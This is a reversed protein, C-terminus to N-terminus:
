DDQTLGWLVLPVLVVIAGLALAHNPILSWTVAAIASSGAVVGFTFMALVFLGFVRNVWSRKAEVIRLRAVVASVDLGAALARRAQSRLNQQNAASPPSARLAGRGRGSDYGRDGHLPAPPLIGSAFFMEIAIPIGGEIEAV